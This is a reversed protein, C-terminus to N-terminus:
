TSSIYFVTSSSKMSNRMVPQYSVLIVACAVANVRRHVGAARGLPLLEKKRRTGASFFVDAQDLPGLCKVIKPYFQQVTLFWQVLCVVHLDGASGPLSHARARRRSVKGDDLVVHLNKPRM